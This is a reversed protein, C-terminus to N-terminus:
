DQRRGKSENDDCFIKGLLNWDGDKKCYRFYELKCHVMAIWVGGPWTVEATENTFWKRIETIRKRRTHHTQIYVHMHWRGTDPCREKGDLLGVWKYCTKMRRLELRHADSTDWLTLCAHQLKTKRIEKKTLAQALVVEGELLREPEEEEEEVLGELSGGDGLNVEGPVGELGPSPDLSDTENAGGPSVDGNNGNAIEM